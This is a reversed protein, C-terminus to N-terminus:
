GETKIMKPFQFLSFVIMGHFSILEFHLLYLGISANNHVM